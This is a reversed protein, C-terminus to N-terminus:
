HNLICINKSSEGKDLYDIGLVKILILYSSMIKVKIKKLHYFNESCSYIYLYASSLINTNITAIGERSASHVEPQNDEEFEGILAIKKTLSFFVQTGRCLFGPIGNTKKNKWIISIPRDSTIFHDESSALIVTWKRKWLMPDLLKLEQMIHSNQDYAIKLDSNNKYQFTDPITELENARTDIIQSDINHQIVKYLTTMVEDYKLRQYPIKVNMWAMLNLILNKDEGKFKLSKEINTIAKDIKGEHRALESELSNEEINELGKIRHFDRVSGVRKPTARFIKKSKLDFCTLASGKKSDITFRKLYFQPIYHHSRANNKANM